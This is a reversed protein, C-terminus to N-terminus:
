NKQLDYNPAYYFLFCKFMIPQFSTKQQQEKRVQGVPAAPSAVLTAVESYLETPMIEPEDCRNLELLIRVM